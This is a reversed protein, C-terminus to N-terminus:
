MGGMGLGMGGFPDMGGQPADGKDLKLGIVLIIFGFVLIPWYDILNVGASALFYLIGGGLLMLIVVGLSRQTLIMIIIVAFVIWNQGYTIAILMLVIAILFTFTDM